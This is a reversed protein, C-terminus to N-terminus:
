PHDFRLVDIVEHVAIDKANRAFFNLFGQQVKEVTNGEEGLIRNLYAVQVQRSRIEQDANSADLLRQELEKKYRNTEMSVSFSRKYAVAILLVTLILVAYNKQRFSYTDFFTM